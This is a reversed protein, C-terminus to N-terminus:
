SYNFIISFKKFEKILRLFVTYFISGIAFFFFFSEIFVWSISVWVNNSPFFILDLNLSSESKSTYFFLICFTLYSSLILFLFYFVSLFFFLMLSSYLFTTVISLINKSGFENGIAIIELSHEKGIILGVM